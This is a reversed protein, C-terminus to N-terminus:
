RLQDDFRQLLVLVEELRSINVYPRVEITQFIGYEGKKVMTVEGVPLGKPFIRGIGSTVVADGVKVDEERMTFELACRGNGKGKVVGRARSRQVMAALASAHDTLLLVRSSSAAVKVLQGVAGSAALVPMGEQLGDVAGRDIVITKFWPAGDEGIVSAVLSPSQQSSKLELLRKLRENAQVAEQSDLLRANLQKISERLQKNEQRVGVLDLYSSWASGVATNAQSFVGILPATLTLITKEFPGAQEKHKLHFSYVALAGLFVGGAILSLRYKKVLEWMGSWLFLSPSITGM